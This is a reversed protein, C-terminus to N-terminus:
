PCPPSACTQPPRALSDRGIASASQPSPLPAVVTSQAPALETAAFIATTLAPIARIACVVILPRATPAMAVAAAAIAPVVTEQEAAPVSRIGACAVPPARPAREPAPLAAIAASVVLPALSLLQGSPLAGVVQGVIQPANDPAGAAVEQAALLPAAAPNATVADILPRNQAAQQASATESTSWAGLGLFLAALVSPRCLTRM